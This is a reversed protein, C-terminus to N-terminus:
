TPAESARAGHRVRDAVALYPRAEAPDHLRLVDAGNLVAAVAAAFTPPARGAPDAGGVIEGLFTKRSLGVLLPYGVRALEGLRRVIEWNHEFTKGFGIGPDIAIRDAGIGAARAQAARASLYEAIEAVVDRYRPARQMTRPDGRMHMLVVGAGSTAVLRAMVPDALATVDNVLHAGLDLARAAVEPKSTDVSIAVDLERAVREIVPAVRALEEAASVPIAGPRTSEGGVDVLDAGGAVLARARDLAADPDLARGGDYFSDPTVNLIGMVLTRRGLALTRDRLRWSAPVGDETGAARRLGDGAGAGGM